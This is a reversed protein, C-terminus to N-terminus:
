GSPNGVLTPTALHYSKSHHYCRHVNTYTAPIHHTSPYMLKGISKSAGCSAAYGPKRVLNQMVAKSFCNQYKMDLFWGPRQANLDVWSNEQCGCRLDNAARYADRTAVQKRELDAKCQRM